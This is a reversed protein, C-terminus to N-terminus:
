RHNHAKGVKLQKGCLDFGNMSNIANDASTTNDFEIFGYGRHVTPREADMSLWVSVVDGFSAFLAKLHDPTVEEMVNGVYIRNDIASGASQQLASITQAVVPNLTPEALQAVQLAQGGNQQIEPVKASKHVAMIKQAQARIQEIKKTLSQSAQQAMQGGMVGGPSMGM